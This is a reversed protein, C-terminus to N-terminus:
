VDNHANWYVRKLLFNRRRGLKDFKGDELWALWNPISQGFEKGTAVVINDFDILLASKTTRRFM